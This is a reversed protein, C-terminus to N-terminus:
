RRGRGGRRGGFSRGGGYFRGGGYSRNNFSRGGSYPSRGSAQPRATSSRGARSTSGPRATSQPRQTSTRNASQTKRKTKEALDRQREKGKADLQSWAQAMADQTASRQSRNLSNVWSSASSTAAHPRATASRSATTRASESGGATAGVQGDGAVFTQSGGDTTVTTTAQGGSAQTSTSVDGHTSDIQTSGSYAGSGDGTATGSGQHSIDTSGYTSSLSTQGSRDFSTSGDPNTTVSGGGTHSGEGYFGNSTTVEASGTSGFQTTDGYTTAGAAGQAHVDATTGNPGTATASGEGAAATTTASDYVIVEGDTTVTGGNPGVYTAGTTTYYVDHLETLVEDVVLGAVFGGYAPAAYASGGGGSAYGEEPPAELSTAYQQRVRDVAAWVDELQTQAALGLRATLELHANLQRLLEPENTRLYVISPAFHQQAQQFEGADLAAAQRIAAPHFAAALAQEVVEDSYFAVGAVLADLAQPSLKQVSGGASQEQGIAGNDSGGALALATVVTLVWKSRTMNDGEHHIQFSFSM